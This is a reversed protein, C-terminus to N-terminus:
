KGFLGSIFPAFYAKIEEGFLFWVAVGAIAVILIFVWLLAWNRDAVYKDERKKLKKMIFKLDADSQRIVSRARKIDSVLERKAAGQPKLKKLRYRSEEITATAEIKKNLISYAKEKIDLPAKTKDIKRALKKHRRYTLKAHKRRVGAAKRNIKGASAKKGSGGYLSILKENLEERESLLVELRMQLADLREARARKRTKVTGKSDMLLAYYRANDDRELKIAKKLIGREKSILKEYRDLKDARKGRDTGFSNAIIDRESEYEALRYENRLGILLIDREISRKVSAARENHERSRALAEEETELCLGDDCLINAIESEYGYGLTRNAEEALKMHNEARRQKAPMPVDSQYYINPIPAAIQGSAVEDAMTDSIKPLPKGVLMEYEDCYGNYEIVCRELVRRQKETASKSGAYICAMVSDVTLETKEKQVGIKNVIFVANQQITATAQDKTIKHIKKDLVAKDKYYKKLTKPLAAKAYYSIYEDANIDEDPVAADDVPPIYESAGINQPMPIPEYKEQKEKFGSAKLSQEYARITRAEEEPDIFKPAARDADSDYGIPVYTPLPEAEYPQAQYNEQLIDTYADTIGDYMMRQNRIREAAESYRVEQEGLMRIEDNYNGYAIDANLRREADEYQDHHRAPIPSYEPQRSSKHLNNNVYNYATATHLISQSAIHLYGDDTARVRASGARGSPDLNLLIKEDKSYINASTDSREAKKSERPPEGSEPKKIPEEYKKEDTSPKDARRESIESFLKEADRARREAEEAERSRFDEVAKRRAEDRAIREANEESIRRAREEEAKKNERAALRQRYEGGYEIQALKEDANKRARDTNEQMIARARAIRAERDEDTERWSAARAKKAAEGDGHKNLHDSLNQLESVRFASKEEGKDETSQVKINNEESM